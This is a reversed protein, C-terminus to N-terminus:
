YIFKNELFWFWTIMGLRWVSVEFIKLSGFKFFYTSNKLNDCAKVLFNGFELFELVELYHIFGSNIVAAIFFNVLNYCPKYLVSVTSSLLHAAM